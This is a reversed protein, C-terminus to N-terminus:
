SIEHNGGKDFSQVKNQAYLLLLNLPFWYNIYIIINDTMYNIVTYGIALLVFYKYTNGIKSSIKRIIYAYSLLWIGYGIFGLELYTALLDSHLNGFAASNISALIEFIWGLGLGYFNLSFEYYKAFSQWMNARGMTNIAFRSFILYLTSSRILWIFVYGVTLIIFIGFYQLRNSKKQTAKINGLKKRKNMSFLIIILLCFLCAAISIRKHAFIFLISCILVYRWKKELFFLMLFIGYIFAYQSEALDTSNYQFFSPINAVVIGWFVYYPLYSNKKGKFLQYIAIAFIPPSIILLLQKITYFSFFGNICCNISGVVVYILPPVLIYLDKKTIKNGSMLLLLVSVAFLVVYKAMGGTALMVFLLGFFIVFTIDGKKIRYNM